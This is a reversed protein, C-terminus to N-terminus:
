IEEPLQIYSAGGLPCYVNIRFGTCIVRLCTWGSGKMACTERENVVKRIITQVKLIRQSFTLRSSVYTKLRGLFGTEVEGFGEPALIDPLVPPDEDNAGGLTSSSTSPSAPPMRSSRQVTGFLRRPSKSSARHM